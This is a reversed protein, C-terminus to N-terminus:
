QGIICSLDTYARAGLSLLTANFPSDFTFLPKNWELVKRCFSETKGGPSAYAVFVEDALATVFENRFRATEATARRVNEGFPSLMLLGQERLADGYERRIRAGSLRRALCLIVAQKEHLLIDLCDKEMLSHFGSIVTIGAGRLDRALDYTKLILDGPCKVSCFFALKKEQLIDLSGLSVISEPAREGLHRRLLSPYKPSSKEVRVVNM